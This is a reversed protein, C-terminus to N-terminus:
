GMPSVCDKYFKQIVELEGEPSEFEVGLLSMSSPQRINRVVCALENVSTRNPLKLSVHIIEGQEPLSDGEVSILAGERSLDLMAGEAPESNESLRVSIPFFTKIRESRRLNRKEMQKPYDVVLIHFPNIYESNVTSRFGFMIGQNIYRVLVPRQKALSVLRGHRKPMDLFIYRPPAVGRIFTSYKIDEIQIQAPEGIPISIELPENSTIIKNIM